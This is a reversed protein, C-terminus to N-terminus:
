MINLEESTAEIFLNSILMNTATDKHLINLGM